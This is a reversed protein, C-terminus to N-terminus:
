LDYRAIDEDLRRADASSIPPTAEGGGPGRRRRWRPVLFGLAVLAGAVALVPVAWSTLDFGGGEPTALVSRGYQAVLERKIQAKDDCAAIRTRIFARERDAQPSQSVSLATGCIVCMVEDEIDPLSARPCAAAALAPSVALALLALALGLALRRM